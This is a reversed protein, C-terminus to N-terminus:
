KPLKILTIMSDALEAGPKDDIGHMAAFDNAYTVAWRYTHDIPAFASRQGHCFSISHRQEESAGHDALMQDLWCGAKWCEFFHPNGRMWSPMDKYENYGCRLADLHEAVWEKADEVTYSKQKM